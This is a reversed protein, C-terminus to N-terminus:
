WAGELLSILRKYEELFKRPMFWFTDLPGAFKEMHKDLEERIERITEARFREADEKLGMTLLALYKQKAAELRDALWRVKGELYFDRWDRELRERESRVVDMNFWDPRGELRRALPGSMAYLAEVALPRQEELVPVDVFSTPVGRKGEIVRTERAVPGSPVRVAQVHLVKFTDPADREIVFPESVWEVLGAERWRKADDVNVTLVDGEKFSFVAETFPKLVRVRVVTEPIKHLGWPCAVEMGLVMREAAEHDPANVHIFVPKGHYPCTTIVEFEPV